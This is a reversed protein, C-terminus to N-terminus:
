LLALSAGLPASWLSEVAKLRKLGVIGRMVTVWHMGPDLNQNINPKSAKPQIQSTRM